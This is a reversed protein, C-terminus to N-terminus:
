KFVVRDLFFAIIDKGEDGVNLDVHATSNFAYGLSCVLNHIWWEDLLSARSREWNYLSSAIVSGDGPCLGVARLALSLSPSQRFFHLADCPSKDVFHPSMM